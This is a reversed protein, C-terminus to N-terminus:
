QWLITLGTEPSALTTNVRNRWLRGM